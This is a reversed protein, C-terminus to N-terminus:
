KTAKTTQKGFLREKNIGIFSTRPLIIDFAKPTFENGRIESLKRM